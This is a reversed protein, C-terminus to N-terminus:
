AEIVVVFEGRVKESNDQFYDLIEEPTGTLYEEHMKTMERALFIKRGDGLTTVLRELANMIRHPSEYFVTTEKIDKLNEFFTKRGKKNPPFGLFLFKHTDFGSVSLASTVATSGPIPVIQINPEERKIFSVLYSGPDSIGPTGADSVYAVNLGSRLDELVLGAKKHETRANLSKLNTKINYKEFIKKTVRTDEAYVVDVESLIDIARLTIDKLNGIPTAIIYIKGLNDM